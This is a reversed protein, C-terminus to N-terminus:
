MDPFTKSDSFPRALQIAKFMDGQCFVTSGCPAIVSGNVFLAAAPMAAAAALTVALLRRLAM